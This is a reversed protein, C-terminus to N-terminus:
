FPWPNAPDPQCIPCQAAPDHETRDAGQSCARSAPNHLAGPWVQVLLNGSGNHGDRVTNMITRGSYTGGDLSWPDVAAPIDLDTVRYMQLPELDGDGYPVAPGLAPHQDTM